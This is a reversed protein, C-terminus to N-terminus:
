AAPGLDWRMELGDATRIWYCSLRAQPPPQLALDELEELHTDEAREELVAAPTVPYPRASPAGIRSLITAAPARYSRFM